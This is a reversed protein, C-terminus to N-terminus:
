VFKVKHNLTDCVLIHNADVACCGTPMSTRAKYGVTDLDGYGEFQRLDSSVLATTTGGNTGGFTVGRKDGCLVTKSYGEILNVGRVLAAESDVVYLDPGSGVLGAPSAFRSSLTNYYRCHLSLIIAIIFLSYSLTM